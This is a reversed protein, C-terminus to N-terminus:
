ISPTGYSVVKSFRLGEVGMPPLNNAHGGSQSLFGVPGPELPLGLTDHAAGPVYLGV